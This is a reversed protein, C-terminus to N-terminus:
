RREVGKPLPLCGTLGAPLVLGAGARYLAPGFEPMDSRLTLTLAGRSIIAVDEPLNAIMEESPLIVVAAPAADSFYMVAAMVGIWGALLALVGGIWRTIM